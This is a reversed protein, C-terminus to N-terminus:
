FLYFSIKISKNILKRSDLLTGKFMYNFEIFQAPLQKKDSIVLHQHLPSRINVLCSINASPTTTNVQLFNILWLWCFINQDFNNPLLLLLQVIYFQLSSLLIIDQCITCDYTQRWQSCRILCIKGVCSCFFIQSCLINNQKEWIIRLM